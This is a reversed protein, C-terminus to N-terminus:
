FLIESQGSNRAAGYKSGYFLFQPDSFFLMDKEFIFTHQKRLTATNLKKNNQAALQQPQATHKQLSLKMLM